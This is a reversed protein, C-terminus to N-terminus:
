LISPLMLVFHPMPKLYSLSNYFVVKELKLSYSRIDKLTKTMPFVPGKKYSKVPILEIAYRRETWLKLLSNSHTVKKNKIIPFCPHSM